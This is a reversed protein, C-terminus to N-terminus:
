INLKNVHRSIEFSLFRIFALQCLSVPRVHREHAAFSVLFSCCQANECLSIVCNQQIFTDKKHKVSQSSKQGNLEQFLSM